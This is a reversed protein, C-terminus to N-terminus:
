ISLCPCKTTLKGGLSYHNHCEMCHHEGYDSLVCVLGNLLRKSDYKKLKGNTLWQKGNILLQEIKSKKIEEESPKNKEVIKSISNFGCQKKFDDLNATGM